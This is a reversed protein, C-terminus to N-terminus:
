SWVDTFLAQDAVTIYAAERSLVRRAVANKAQRNGARAIATLGGVIAFSDLTGHYLGPTNARIYNVVPWFYSALDAGSTVVGQLYPWLHFRGDSVYWADGTGALDAQGYYTKFRGATGDWLALIGTRLTAADTTATAASGSDGATTYLSALAVMGRWAECNDALWQINYASGDPKTEGIFTTSLNNVVGDTICSAALDGLVQLRTKSPHGSAAGLWSADVGGALCASILVGAYADNSDPLNAAPGLRTALDGDIDLLFTGAAWAAPLALGTYEWTVGGDGLFSGKTMIAADSPESGATTGGINAFFVKGSTFIVMTPNAYAASNARPKVTMKGIAMACANRIEAATFQGPALTMASFMFYPSVMGAPAKRYGDDFPFGTSVLKLAALASVSAAVDSAYAVPRGGIEGKAPGVRLM